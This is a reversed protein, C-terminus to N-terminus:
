LSVSLDGVTRAASDYCLLGRAQTFQMMRGSGGAGRLKICYANTAACLTIAAMRRWSGGIDVRLMDRDGSM